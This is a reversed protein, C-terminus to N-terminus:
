NNGIHFLRCAQAECGFGFWRTGAAVHRIEDRYIRDSHRGVAPDGAREFAAITAPTVTSARAELVMPVVALRALPDTRTEAAQRWLGDHAPL